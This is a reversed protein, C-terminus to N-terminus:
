GARRGPFPPDATDGSVNSGTLDLEAWVTKGDERLDQGWAAACADILSLGRGGTESPPRPTAPTRGADDVEIRLRGPRRLLRVQRAREGHRLANSVLEDLVLIVDTLGAETVDGLEARAWARVRALEGLDGGVDLALVDVERGAPAAQDTSM